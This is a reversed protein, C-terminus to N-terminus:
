RSDNSCVGTGVECVRYSPVGQLTGRPITDAHVGDNTITTLLTGNRYVDVSGSTAGTWSLDVAWGVGSIEARSTTLVIEPAAVPEPTEGFRYQALFLDGLSECKAWGEGYEGDGTFDATLQLYGTVYLIPRDPFFVVPGAHDRGPGPATWVHQPAGDEGSLVLIALESELSPDVTRDVREPVGDGDLDRVGHYSGTVVIRRGDSTVGGPLELDYARIWRPRGDRSFRGVWINDPEEGVIEVDPRMDGDFDAAGYFEEAREGFRGLLFLDGDDAFAIWAPGAGLSWADRFAGDPGFRAFFGDTDPPAALDAEGDDDFDLAEEFGGSVWLEGDPAIAISVPNIGELMRIWRVTGDPDFSALFQALEEDGRFMTGRDDLPFSGSAVGIVYANGADDTEIDRLFDQGPGAFAKAWLVEGEAGFRAFYADLGAVGPLTPGSPFTVTEQFRGVMYAGGARDSAVRNASNFGPSSLSRMWQLRVRGDEERWALKLLLPDSMDGELDLTGDRDLDIGGHHGSIFLNGLHDVSMDEGSEASLPGDLTWFWEFGVAAQPPPEGEPEAIDGVGPAARAGYWVGLSAVAAAVAAIATTRKRM